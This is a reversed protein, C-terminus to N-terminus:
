EPPCRITAHSSGNRWRWGADRHGGTLPHFSRRRIERDHDRQHFRAQMPYAKSDPDGRMLFYSPPVKYNGKGPGFDIFKGAGVYELECKPCAGENRDGYGLAVSRWDGDTVISAM